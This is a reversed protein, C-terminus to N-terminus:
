AHCTRRLQAAAPMGAGLRPACSCSVQALNPVTRIPCAAGFPRVTFFAKLTRFTATSQMEERSKRKGDLVTYCAAAM